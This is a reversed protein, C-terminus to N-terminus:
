KKDSGKSSGSSKTDGSSSGSTTAKSTDSGKDKSGTDKSGTDKSGADKSGADKAGADKAGADKNGAAEGGTAKRAYDTIYWGSGKFQIAPASVLKEIPGGCTPCALLPPDSFKRVLEFTGDKPCQYEYLPL